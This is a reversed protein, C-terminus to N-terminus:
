RCAQVKTRSPEQSCNGKKCTAFEGPQGCAPIAGVWGEGVCSGGGASVCAVTTPTEQLEKTDCDFDWAHTGESPKDGFFQQQGPHTRKDADDCDTGADVYGPPRSCAAKSLAPSGYGDGDADRFFRTTCRAFPVKIASPSTATVAFRASEGRAISMGASDLGEVTIVRDLGLPIAPLRVEHQSVAATATSTTMAPGSAQLRVVEVGQLADPSTLVLEVDIMAGDDGCGGLTILAALLTLQLSSRIPEDRVVQLPVV